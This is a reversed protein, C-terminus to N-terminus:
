GGGILPFVSVDDGDKIPTDDGEIHLIHRGNVLINVNRSIKEDGGDLCFDRFAKGHVACLDNMLALVTYPASVRAINDEKKGTMERINAFYGVHIM